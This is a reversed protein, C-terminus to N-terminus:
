VSHITPLTLHTYPINAVNYLDQLPTMIIRNLDNIITSMAQEKEMLKVILENEQVEQAVQQAVDVTEDDIEQGTMQKEQITVQVDRFREFKAKADANENVERYADQLSIFEPTERIGKDLDHALDYINVAM